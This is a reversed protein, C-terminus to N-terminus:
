GARRVETPLAWSAAKSSGADTATFHSLGARRQQSAEGARILVGLAVLVRGGTIGTDDMLELLTSEGREHLSALVRMSETMM